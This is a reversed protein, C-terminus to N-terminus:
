RSGVADMRFADALNKVAVVGLAAVYFLAYFLHHLWLLDALAVVVLAVVEYEATAKALGFVGRGVSRSEYPGLLQEAKRGLVVMLLYAVSRVAALAPWVLPGAELWAQGPPNWYLVWGLCFPLASLHFWTLGDDLLEGARSTTGTCRAVHGDVNDLVTMVSLWCAGLAFAVRDGGSATMWGLGTALALWAAGTVVNAGIGLRVFIGAVRMSLPQLLHSYPCHLRIWAQKAPPYSARIQEFTTAM